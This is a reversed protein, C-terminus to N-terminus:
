ASRWSANASLLADFQNDIEREYEDFMGLKDNPIDYKIKILKDFQGTEMMVSIPVNEAILEKCKNYLKLIVGMMRFQKELPVYTDDKHYANQQLFGIRIIKAIEIVLKNDDPLASAGILKVIEMLRNEEILVNSIAQRYEMFKPNVQTNYFDGLEDM